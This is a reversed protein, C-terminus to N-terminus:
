KTKTKSEKSNEACVVVDDTFLSLKTEEKGTLIGKIKKKGVQTPWSKWYLTPHSCSLLCGKSTGLILPFSNLGEGNLIIDVKTMHAYAHAHKCINGM